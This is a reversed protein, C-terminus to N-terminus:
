QWARRISASNRDKQQSRPFTKGPSINLSGGCYMFSMKNSGIVDLYEQFILVTRESDDKSELLVSSELPPVEEIVM